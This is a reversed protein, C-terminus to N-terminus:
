NQGTMKKFLAILYELRERTDKFPKERYCRDVIADLAQHAKLLKEPMKDPDYMEAYTMEHFEERIDIIEYVAAEIEQKMAASITPIPFNNYVFSSYRPDTKLRGAILKTWEMHMKSSLVGFTWPKADYIAQAANSIVTNGDLFGLPVYERKESTHCPFIISESNKHRIEGFRHAKSALARTAPRDSHIRKDYCGKIRSQIFPIKVADGLEFDEIWLCYRPTKYLFEDAGQFKKVFKKAELSAEM